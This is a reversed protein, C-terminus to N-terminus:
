QLSQLWDVVFDGTYWATVAMVACCLCLVVVGIIVYKVWKRDKEEGPEEVPETPTFLDDNM